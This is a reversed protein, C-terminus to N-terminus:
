VPAMYQHVVRPKPMPYRALIQRFKDWNIHGNRTRRSLAKRWIRAVQHVYNRLRRSNGTIGFYAYHGRVMQCLKNWQDPLPKHRFRKCYQTVKALGNAFSKKATLQLVHAKGRRSRGWLHIFGLFTFSLAREQARKKQARGQFNFDVIKTKEPHLELHFRQLRKGLVNYVRKADSYRSFVIVFDDCYRTLSAPGQLRPKVETEFWKDLVHHLYINSLLPSLIGGQPSGSEPFSLNKGDLIGAKLWKDILKRIVGDTIRESLFTRLVEHDLTTFFSKIDADIIWRGGEDMIHNRLSQLAQHASRKRRYGWSCNYFQAEFIPELLMQIAQQAIKDEFTPVGLPRMDGATNKPIYVRKVAPAVYEGSKLRSLLSRLNDALNEAYMGATQGDVGSAGNKRVRRYAERMWAEDLVHHVSIIPEDTYKEALDAIWKRKTSMNM